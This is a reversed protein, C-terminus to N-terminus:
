LAGIVYWGISSAPGFISNGVILVKIIRKIALDDADNSCSYTVLSLLISSKKKSTNM